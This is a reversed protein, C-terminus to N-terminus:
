EIMTYEGVVGGECDCGIVLLDDEKHAWDGVMVELVGMLMVISRFM